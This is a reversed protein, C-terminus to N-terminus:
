HAHKAAAADDPRMAHFFLDRIQDLLARDSVRAISKFSGRQHYWLAHTIFLASLMRAAVLPDMQRLRGQEMAREIIDCVLRHAREIVETAYFAVLDPFTHMESNVLRHMAPFVPSRLWAWYGTMWDRLAQEADAQTTLTAEAREIYAIVSTRVVERFLEEKNAFYLYITGKSVGAHQAIDELRAASLGREAFVVLAAELIQRPREEPLRRWRPETSHTSSM